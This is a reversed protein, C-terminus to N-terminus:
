PHTVTVRVDWIGLTLDSTGSVEIYWEDQAVVAVATGTSATITVTGSAASSSGTLVSTTTGLDHDRKKVAVNVAVAANKTVKVTAGTIKDGVRVNDMYLRFVWPNGTPQVQVLDTTNVISANGGTSPIFAKSMNLRLTWADTHKQDAATTFGGLFAVQAHVTNDVKVAGTSDVTVLQFQGATTSPLNPFSWTGSTSGGFTFTAAATLGSNKLVVGSCALKSYVTASDTFDYTTTSHTYTVSAGSSGPYDGNIGGASAVSIAGSDTIQVTGYATVLYWEGGSYYCTGPTTYALGADVTLLAGVNTLSHGVMDLDNTMSMDGPTVKRALEAQLALFNDNLKTCISAATDSTAFPDDLTVTQGAM